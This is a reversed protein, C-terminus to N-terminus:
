TIHDGLVLLGVAVVILVLLVISVVLLKRQQNKRKTGRYRDYYGM